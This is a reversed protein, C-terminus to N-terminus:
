VPLDMQTPNGLNDIYYYSLNEIFLRMFAKM